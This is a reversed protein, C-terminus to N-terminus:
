RLDAHGHRGFLGIKRRGAEHRTAKDYDRQVTAGGNKFATLAVAKMDLLAQSASM